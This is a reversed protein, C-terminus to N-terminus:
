NEIDLTCAAEYLSRMRKLARFIIVDFNGVTVDMEAACEERSKGLLFRLEVAKRYRPNLQELLTRALEKAGDSDQADVLAEEPGAFRKATLEAYYTFGQVFRENRRNARHIDIIKNQAIRSLWYFLSRGQWRVGEIKDLATLFTDRLVDEALDEVGVRPLIVSRYLRESFALYFERFAAAEGAQLRKLLRVEQKPTLSM